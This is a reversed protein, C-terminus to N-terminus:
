SALRKRLVKYTFGDGMIRRMRLIATADPGIPYRLKLGKDTAAKFITEAVAEPATGQEGMKGIRGSVGKVMKGYEHLDENHSFDASRGYFDTKIIGPEVIRLWVNFPEVEFQLAESFGEVAWKSANYVSYMPFCVRGGMSAVNVICGGKQKRFRPLIGRCCAMLGYVNTDFQRRIQEESISEFSGSLGYGANNVLVDIKGFASEAAAFASEISGEDTVDLRVVCWRKPDKSGSEFKEPSRMTACVNWGAAYFREASAKGIGSSAGTIVVTKSM